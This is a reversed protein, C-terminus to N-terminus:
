RIRRAMAAMAPSTKRSYGYPQLHDARLTDVTMLLINPAIDSGSGGTKEEHDGGCAVVLFGAVVLTM